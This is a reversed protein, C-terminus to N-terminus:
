LLTDPSSQIYFLKSSLKLLELLLRTFIDSHYNETDSGYIPSFPESVIRLYGLITGLLTNLLAIANFLSRM